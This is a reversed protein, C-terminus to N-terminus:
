KRKFVFQWIVHFGASKSINSDFFVGERIKENIYSEIGNFETPDKNKIYYMFKLYSWINHDKELHREFGASM